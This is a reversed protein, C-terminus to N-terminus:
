LQAEKEKKPATIRMKALPEQHYDKFSAAMVGLFIETDSPMFKPLVTESIAQREGPVMVDYTYRETNETRMFKGLYEMVAPTLHQSTAAVAGFVGDYIKRDFRDGAKAILLMKAVYFHLIDMGHYHRIADSVTVVQRPARFGVVAQWIDRTMSYRNGDKYAPLYGYDLYTDFSVVDAEQDSSAIIAIGIDGVITLSGLERKMVENTILAVNGWPEKCKDIAEVIDTIDTQKFLAEAPCIKREIKRDTINPKRM